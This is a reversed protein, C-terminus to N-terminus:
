DFEHCMLIKSRIDRITIGKFWEGRVKYPEFIRHLYAEIKYAENKREFHELIMEHPNGTQLTVLRQEINNTVGIKILDGCSIIYLFQPKSRKKKPQNLIDDLTRM